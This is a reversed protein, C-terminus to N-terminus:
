MGKMIQTTATVYGVVITWDFDEPLLYSVTYTKVKEDYRLEVGTLGLERCFMETLKAVRMDQMENFLREM